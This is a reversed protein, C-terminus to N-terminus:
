KFFWFSITEKIIESDITKMLFFYMKVIHKQEYLIGHISQM